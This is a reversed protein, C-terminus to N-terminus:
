AQHHTWFTFRGEDLDVHPESIRFRLYAHIQYFPVEVSEQLRRSGAVLFRFEDVRVTLSSRHAYDHGSCTVRTRRPETIGDFVDSSRLLNGANRHIVGASAQNVAAHHRTPPAHQSHSGYTVGQLLGLL